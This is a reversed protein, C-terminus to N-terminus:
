LTLHESLKLYCDDRERSGTLENLRVKKLVRLEDELEIVRRELELERESPEPAGTELM